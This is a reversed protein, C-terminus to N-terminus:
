ASLPKNAFLLLVAASSTTIATMAIAHYGAGFTFTVETDQDDVTKFTITADDYLYIAFPIKGSTNDAYGAFATSAALTKVYRAWSPILKGSADQIAAM